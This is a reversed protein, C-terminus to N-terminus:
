PRLNMEIVNRGVTLPSAVADLIRDRDDWATLQVQDLRGPMRDYIIQGLNCPVPAYVIDPEARFDIFHVSLMDVGVCAADNSPSVASGNVTWTIRAEVVNSEDVCEGVRTCIGFGCDGDSVCESSEPISQFCGAALLPVM